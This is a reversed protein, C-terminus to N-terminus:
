QLAILIPILGQGEELPRLAKGIIAGFASHAEAARMAHGPTPSTTLLDGIEIPSYQADVKCYVKGVLAVPIRGEESARKDLVLGHRYDGAGSVVGAVKKDYAQRSERLAGGEDIVVVTGPQPQQSGVVDFQEACDAGTLLIDGTVSMNGDGTVTVLAQGNFIGGIGLTNKQIVFYSTPDFDLAVGSAGVGLRMFKNNDSRAIAICAGPDSAGEIHLKDFPAGAREDRDSLGIGVNGNSDIVIRDAMANNAAGPIKSSITITNGYNGDDNIGIVSSPYGGSPPPTTNFVIGVSAGLGGSTNTLTLTPGPAPASIELLSRPSATGIGVNGNNNVVFRGNPVGAADIGFTGNGGFSFYDASDAANTGGEIRLAKGAPLHLPYNPASTGIGVNGNRRVTVLASYGPYPWPGTPAVINLATNEGVGYGMLLDFSNMGPVAALNNGLGNNYVETGNAGGDWVLERIGFFNALSLAAAPSATGIGVNGSTNIVFRGNPVGPADIGFTGNGGFSFYNANDAANTGGEIRLAKGAALHLPYNPAITGIGVNGSADVRLREPPNGAGTKIVLPQNDTTGLFNTAPNTGANGSTSWPGNAM